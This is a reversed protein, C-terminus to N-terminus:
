STFALSHVRRTPFGTFYDIPLVLEPTLPRDVIYVEARDTARDTAYSRRLRGSAFM